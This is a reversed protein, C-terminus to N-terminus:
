GIHQLSLSPTLTHGCAMDRDNQGHPGELSEINTKSVQM